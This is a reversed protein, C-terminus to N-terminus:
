RATAARLAEIAEANDAALGGPDCLGVSGDDTYVLRSEGVEMTVGCSAGDRATELTIEDGEAVGKFAETVALTYTVPDVSSQVFGCGRAHPGDLVEGVFVREHDALHAEPTTEDSACKCAWAVTSAVCQLFVFTLSVRAVTNM